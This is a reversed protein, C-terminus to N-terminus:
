KKHKTLEAILEERSMDEYSEGKREKNDEISRMKNAYRKDLASLQSKMVAHVTECVLVVTEKGYKAIDEPTITEIAKVMCTPCFCKIDDDRLADDKQHALFEAVSIDDEKAVKIATEILDIMHDHARELEREEESKAEAEMAAGVAAKLQEILDKGGNPELKIMLGKGIGEIDVIKSKM